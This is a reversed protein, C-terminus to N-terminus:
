NQNKIYSRLNSLLIKSNKRGYKEADKLVYGSDKITKNQTKWVNFIHLMLSAYFKNVASWASNGEVEERQLINDRMACLAIRTVNISLVMLPFEQTVSQSLKHLDKALTLTQPSSTVLYLPQILGLFGVGRLDTAPDNGQFGINEWHAGYRPRDVTEGTLKKFITLLVRYHLANNDDFPCKAVAMVRMRESMIAQRTPDRLIRLCNVTNRVLHRMGTIGRGGRAHHAALDAEVQALQNTLDQNQFDQLVEDLRVAESQGPPGARERIGIASSSETAGRPDGKGFSPVIEQVNDWDEQAEDYKTWSEEQM